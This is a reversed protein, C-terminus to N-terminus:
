FFDCNDRNSQQTIMGANAAFWNWFELYDKNM